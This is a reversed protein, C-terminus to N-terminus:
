SQSGGPPPPQAPASQQAAAKIDIVGNAAEYRQILNSLTLALRKASPYSMVIRNSVDVRVENDKNPMMLNIAFNLVAEEPTSTVICFNTYTTAAQADMIRLKAGQQAADRSQGESGEGAANGVVKDDM